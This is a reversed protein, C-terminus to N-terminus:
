IRFPHLWTARDMVRRLCICAAITLCISLTVNLFEPVHLRFLIILLPQLIFPTHYAFITSSAVGLVVLPTLVATRNVLLFIELLLLPVILVLGVATHFVVLVFVALLIGAASAIRWNAKQAETKGFLFGLSYQFLAGLTDFIGLSTLNGHTAAAYCILLCGLAATGAALTKPGARLQTILAFAVTVVFLLVFFYLQEGVVHGYGDLHGCTLLAVMKGFWTPAFRDPSMDSLLGSREIIQQVTAYITGLLLYPGLLRRARRGIHELVGERRRSLSQLYGSVFIFAYISWSFLAVIVAIAGRLDDSFRRNSVHYFIIGVIALGKLANVAVERQRGSDIAAPPASV